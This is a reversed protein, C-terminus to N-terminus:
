DILIKNFFLYSNFNNLIKKKNYILQGRSSISRMAEASHTLPSFNTLFRVWEPMGELPWIIGSLLLAPFVSGIAIQLVSTEDDAGASIALGYSMGCYGQLLLLLSSLLVSLIGGKM